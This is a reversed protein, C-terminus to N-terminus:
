RHGAGRGDAGAAGPPIRASRRRTLMVWVQSAGQAIASLWLDIGISATHWVSVPLVRAPLGQLSRDRRSPRRRPGARRAPRHGRSRQPDAAGRRAWRRPRLRHAHHAPAPGPGGHGPLRLAMAGSPCVTTCAGCGVCLHPEVIVGGAAQGKAKGKRSADSRIARASCVDICATCGIKENRSHACLKTDYRFFKPKDFEGTLERLKLVADCWRATTPAPTSTARRRSTSASPRASRAPRARPRLNRRAHLPARSFDIAGAADCVRVCDRHSRAPTWTSRTTWASPAKPAPTSAPM